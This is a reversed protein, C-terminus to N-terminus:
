GWAAGSAPLPINNRKSGHLFMPALHHGLDCLSDLGLCLQLRDGATMVKGLSKTSVLNGRPFPCEPIGNLSLELAVKENMGCVGQLDGGDM